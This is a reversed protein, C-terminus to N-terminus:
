PSTVTQLRTSLISTYSWRVKGRCQISMVTVYRAGIAKDGAALASRYSVLRTLEPRLQPFFILKRRGADSVRDDIGYYAAIGVSCDNMYSLMTIAFHKNDYNIILIKWVLITKETKTPQNLFESREDTV